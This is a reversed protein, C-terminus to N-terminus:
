RSVQTLKLYVHIQEAGLRELYLRNKEGEKSYHKFVLQLFLAGVFVIRAISTRIAAKCSRILSLTSLVPLGLFSVEFLDQQPLLQLIVDVAATDLQFVGRWNTELGEPLPCYHFIVSCRRWCTRWDHDASASLPQYSSFYHFTIFGIQLLRFCDSGIPHFKLSWAVLGLMRKRCFQLAVLARQRLWACLTAGPSVILMVHPDFRTSVEPPAGQWFADACTLYAM